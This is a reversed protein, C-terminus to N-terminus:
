HRQSYETRYSDINEDAHGGTNPLGVTGGAGTVKELQRDDLAGDPKASKRDAAPRPTDQKVTSKEPAPKPTDRKM